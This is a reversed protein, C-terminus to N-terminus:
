GMLTLWGVDYVADRSVLLSHEQRIKKHMAHYGLLKGPGEIEKRVAERVDNVPIDSHNYYIDFYRLRRDLTRISWAYSSFDRQVFDLIEKRSMGQCVYKQKSNFIRKGIIVTRWIQSFAAHMKM